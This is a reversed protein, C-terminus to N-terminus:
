GAAPINANYVKGSKLVGYARRLLLHSVAVLASKGNSREKKETFFKGIDRDLRKASMAAMYLNGRLKSNGRKTIGFKARKHGSSYERVGYGVFASVRKAGKGDGERDFREHNGIVALTLSATMGSVGPISMLLQMERPFNKQIYKDLLKKMSVIEDKIIKLERVQSKIIDQYFHNTKWAVSSKCFEKLKCLKEPTIRGQNKKVCDRIETNKAQLFQESSQCQLLIAISAKCTIDRFIKTIEPFTEVLNAHLQNTLAIKREVLDDLRYLIDQLNIYGFEKSSHKITNLRSAQALVFADIIDTKVSASFADRLRSIDFPNCLIVELNRQDLYHFLNGSHSGTSEMSFIPDYGGPISALLEEFGKRDSTIQYTRTVKGDEMLHCIEFFDKSIDIGIYLRPLTKNEELNM